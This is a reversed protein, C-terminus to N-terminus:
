RSKIINLMARTEGGRAGWSPKVEYTPMPRADLGASYGNTYQMFSLESNASTTFLSDTAARQPVLRYGDLMGMRFYASSLPSRPDTHSKM